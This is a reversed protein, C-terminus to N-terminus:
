LFLLGADDDPIAGALEDRREFGLQASASEAV